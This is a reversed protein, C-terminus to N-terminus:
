RQEVRLFFSREKTQTPSESTVIANDVRYLAGLTGASIRIQTKRNGSLVSPNDKTLATDTSPRIATITFTSSAITVTSALHEADWDFVYVSVDAPDKTVLAGDQVTLSM